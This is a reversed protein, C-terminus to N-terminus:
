RIEQVLAIAKEILPMFEAIWAKIWNLFDVM